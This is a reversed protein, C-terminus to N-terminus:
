QFWQTTYYYILMEWLGNADLKLPNQTEGNFPPDCISWSDDLSM